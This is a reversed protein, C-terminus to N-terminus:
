NVPLATAVYSAFSAVVEIFNTTQTFIQSAPLFTPIEECCILQKTETKVNIFDNALRVHVCMCAHVGIYTYLSICVNMCVHMFEYM